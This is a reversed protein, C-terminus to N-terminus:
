EFASGGHRLRMLYDVDEPFFRTLDATFEMGDARRITVTEDTLRIVRAEIARGDTSRFTRLPENVPETPCDPAAAASTAAPSAAASDADSAFPSAEADNRSTEPAPVSKVEGNEVVEGAGRAYTSVLGPSLAVLAGAGLLVLGTILLYARMLNRRSTKGDGSFAWKIMLVIGIVPIMLLVLTLLWEGVSVPEEQTSNPFRPPTMM